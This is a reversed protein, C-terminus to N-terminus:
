SAYYTPSGYLTIAVPTTVLDGGSGVPALSAGVYGDFVMINGGTGFTFKFCKDTNAQYAAKLAVLGADAVDWISTFNYVIPNTTGPIQTEVQDHITTTKVFNLDGGSANLATLSSITTGFTLKYASGSAFTAYGTTNEGELVFTDTAAASVRFVRNNVQYMGQVSLVVFDGNSYGNATCNVTATAGAAIASITKAAARASEM